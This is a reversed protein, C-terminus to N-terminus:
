EISMYMCHYCIEEWMAHRGKLPNQLLVSSAMIWTRHLPSPVSHCANGLECIWKILKLYVRPFHTFLTPNASILRLQNARSFLVKATLIRFKGAPSSSMCPEGVLLLWATYVLVCGANGNRHYLSWAHLICCVNDEHAM